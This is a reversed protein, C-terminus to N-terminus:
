KKYKVTTKVTKNTADFNSVTVTISDGVLVPLVPPDSSLAAGLGDTMDLGPRLIVDATINTGAYLNYGTMTADEPVVAVVVTGTTATALDIYIERIEGRVKTITGVVATAANTSTATVTVKERDFDYSGAFASSAVFAAVALVILMKRM